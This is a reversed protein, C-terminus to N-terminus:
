RGREVTLVSLVACMEDSNRRFPYRQYIFIKWSILSYDVNLKNWCKGFCSMQKGGSDANESNHFYPPIESCASPPVIEDLPAAVGRSPPPPLQCPGCHETM